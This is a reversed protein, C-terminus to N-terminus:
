GAVHGASLGEHDPCYGFAAVGGCADVAVEHALCGEVGDEVSGDVGCFSSWSQYDIPILSLVFCTYPRIAMTAFM